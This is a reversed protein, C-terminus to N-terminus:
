ECTRPGPAPLRCHAGGLRPLRSLSPSSFLFCMYGVQTLRTSVMLFVCLPRQSRQARVKSTQRKFNPDRWCKVKSFVNKSELKSNHCIKIKNKTHTQDVKKKKSHVASRDVQTTKLHASLYISQSFLYFKIYSTYFDGLGTTPTLKTM